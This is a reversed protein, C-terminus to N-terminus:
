LRADTEHIDLCAHDVTEAKMTECGQAQCPMRGPRTSGADGLSFCPSTEHATLVGLDGTGNDSFIIAKCSLGLKDPKNAGSCGNM